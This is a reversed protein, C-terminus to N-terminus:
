HCEVVIVEEAKLIVLTLHNAVSGLWYYKMM